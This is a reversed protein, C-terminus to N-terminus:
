MNAMCTKQFCQPFLFFQKYCATEGKRVTNEVHKFVNRGHEDFQLKQRCIRGTRFLRFNTMQSLTLHIELFAHIPTSAVSINNSVPNEMVGKNRQIKLTKVGGSKDIHGGGGGWNNNVKKLEYSPTM